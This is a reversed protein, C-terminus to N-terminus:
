KETNKGTDQEEGTVAATTTATALYVQALAIDSLMGLLKKPNPLNIRGLSSQTNCHLLLQKM